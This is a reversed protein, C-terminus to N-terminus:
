SNLAYALIANSDYDYGILVYKGGRTSTVPFKGTINTYLTGQADAVGLAVFFGQTHAEQIPNLNNQLDEDTIKTSQVNKRILDM